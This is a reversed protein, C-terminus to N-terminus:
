EGISELKIKIFIRSINGKNKIREIKRMKWWFYGEGNIKIFYNYEIIVLISM